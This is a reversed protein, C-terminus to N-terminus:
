RLNELCLGRGGYVASREPLDIVGMLDPRYPLIKQVKYPAEFAHWDTFPNAASKDLMNWLYVADEALDGYFVLELRVGLNSSWRWLHSLVRLDPTWMVKQRLMRSFWGTRPEESREDKVFVLEAAVYYRYTPANGLDGGSV